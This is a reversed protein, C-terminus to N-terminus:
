IQELMDTMMNQHIPYRTGSPNLLLGTIMPDKIIKGFLETWSIEMYDKCGDLDCEEKSTYGLNWCEEIEPLFYFSLEREKESEKPEKSAAYLTGGEQMRKMIEIAVYKLHEIGKSVGHERIAEVIAENGRIDSDKM